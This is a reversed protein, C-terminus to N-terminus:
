GILKKAREADRRAVFVYYVFNNNGTDRYAMNFQRYAGVDMSRGIAGRPKITKVEYPIGAESLLLKVRGLEQMDSCTLVKQRFLGLM